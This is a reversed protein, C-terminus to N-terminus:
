VTKASTTVPDWKIRKVCPAKTHDFGDYFLYVVRCVDDETEPPSTIADNVVRLLVAERQRKTVRKVGQAPKYEDPNYRVFFVPLTHNAINFMRTIECETAYAKHQHEDTEVDVYHTGAPILIDPREKGCQGHDMTRDPAFDPIDPDHQLLARVEREKRGRMEACFASDCFECLGNSDLIMPLNCMGCPREVRNVMNVTKHTDCHTAPGSLSYLAIEKCCECKRQPNHMM